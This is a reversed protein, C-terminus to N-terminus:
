PQNSTEKALLSRQCAAEYFLVSAAVAANLSESSRHMPISVQTDCLAIQEPTLGSGENGIWLASPQALESTCATGHQVVAAFSRVGHSRLLAAADSASKCPLLPLRLAAGASARLCKTNWPTVTGPLLIAGTAGFALASRLMTGLNGPDQVGASVFLLAPEGAFLANENYSPAHLLALAPQPTETGSLERFLIPPLTLLETKRLLADLPASTYRLAAAIEWLAHAEDGSRLLLADLALGTSLAEAILHFGELAILSDPPQTKKTVTPATQYGPLGPAPTPPEWTESALRPAGRTDRLTQPVRLPAPRSLAARLAKVWRNAPSQVIRIRASLTPDM